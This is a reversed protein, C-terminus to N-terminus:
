QETEEALIREFAKYRYIVFFAEIIANIYTTLVFLWFIIIALVTGFIGSDLINLISAFYMFLVPIGVVVILNIFFRVILLIELFVFKITTGLNTLALSWSRKIADTVSSGEIIISYKSYPRLIAVVLICFGWIGFLIQIFVSDVINLMFIRIVLIIYTTVSFSSSLAGYEFMPFFENTGKGLASSISNKKDKIYYILSAQWIPEILFYGIGLVIIIIILISVINHQSFRNLIFWIAEGMPVWRSFRAVMLNNLNLVLLLIIVASHCFSTIFSLRIIKHDNIIYQLAENILSRTMHRHLILSVELSVLISDLCLYLINQNCANHLINYYWTYKITQWSPIILLSIVNSTNIHNTYIPYRITSGTPAWANNSLTWDRNEESSGIVGITTAGVGVVTTIEVHICASVHNTFVPLIGGETTRSSSFGTEGLVPVLVGDLGGALRGGTCDWGRGVFEDERESWSIFSKCRKSM